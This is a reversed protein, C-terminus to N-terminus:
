VRLNYSEIHAAIDIQILNLIRLAPISVDQNSALCYTTKYYKGYGFHVATSIKSFM